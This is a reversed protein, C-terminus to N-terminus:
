TDTRVWCTLNSHGSPAIRHDALAARDPLARARGCRLIPDQDRTMQEILAEAGEERAYMIFALGVAVGRIIQARAPASVSRWAAL